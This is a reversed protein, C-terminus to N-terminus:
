ILVAMLRIVIKRPLIEASAVQTCYGSDLINNTCKTHKSMEVDTYTFKTNTWQQFASDCNRLLTINKIMNWNNMALITNADYSKYERTSM